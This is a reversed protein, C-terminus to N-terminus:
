IITKVLNRFLYYYLPETSGSARRECLCITIYLNLLGVREGECLCITIYLNLLGVREGKCLCITIYLNLLDM